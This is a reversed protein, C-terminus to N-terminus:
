GRSEAELGSYEEAFLARIILKRKKKHNIRHLRNFSASVREGRTSAQSSSMSDSSSEM